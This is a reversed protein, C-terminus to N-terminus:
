AQLNRGKRKIRYGFFVGTILAPLLGLISVWYLPKFIYDEFADYYNSNDLGEQFFGLWGSLFATVLLVAMGALPGVIIPHFQRILILRGSLRGAWHSCILLIFVGVFINIKFSIETLWFVNATFLGMISYAIVIGITASLLGENSGIRMADKKTM